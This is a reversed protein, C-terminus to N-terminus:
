AMLPRSGNRGSVPGSPLAGPECSQFVTMVFMSRSRARDVPRFMSRWFYMEGSSQAAVTACNGSSTAIGPADSAHVFYRWDKSLGARSGIGGLPAVGSDCSAVFITSCAKAGLGPPPVVMGRGIPPGSSARPNACCATPAGYHGVAERLGDRPLRSREPVLGGEDVPEALVIEPMAGEIMLEGRLPDLGVGREGQAIARAVLIGVVPVRGMLGHVVPFRAAEAERPGGIKTGIVEVVAVLKRGPGKEM